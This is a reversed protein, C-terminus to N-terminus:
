NDKLLQEIAGKLKRLRCFLPIRVLNKSVTGRGSPGSLSFHGQPFRPFKQWAWIRMEQPQNKPPRSRGSLPVCTGSFERFSNQWGLGWIRMEQPQIKQHSAAALYPSCLYFPGQVNFFYPSCSLLKRFAIFFLVISKKKNDKLLQETAGRLKRLRCFLPIRVLNKSVTGRGSPGSLSFHGQPFRPFNQWAWIRMEQPQIKQRGAAALYPSALGQFSRLVIKHGPLPACTGSFERFCTRLGLGWIRM